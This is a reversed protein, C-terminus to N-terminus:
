KAVEMIYGLSRVTNIRVDSGVAQLKKRVFSIYVEISNYEVDTDYGWIKQIFKEKSIINGKNMLLIEMIQYEKQSLKIKQSDKILEHRNKDIQIDGFSLINGTYEKTNRRSLARVRALFEQTIFPKTLYDDAGNDLGIIKDEIESKATLMMVASTINNARLRKLVEIGDMEPLMVDLIIIDYIGTMAYDLGDVGNHVMDTSYGNQKLMESLVSALSKEDEVILIKM